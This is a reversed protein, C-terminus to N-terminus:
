KLLPAPPEDAPLQAALNGPEIPFEIPTEMHVLAVANSSVNVDPAPSTLPVGAAPAVVTLTDAPPPEAPSPPAFYLTPSM